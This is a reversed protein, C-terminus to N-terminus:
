ENQEYGDCAEEEALPTILTIKPESEIYLNETEFQAKVLLYEAYSYNANAIEWIADSIANFLISYMKQYDAMLM